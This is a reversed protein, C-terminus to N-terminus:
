NGQLHWAIKRLIIQETVKGPMSNLSVPRYNGLDEKHGKKYIPIVSALRWHESFEGTSWSHQYITSFPKATVEAPKRLVRPHIEDPGMTKHYDLHFLLDRVTKEQITPAKNREGDLVELDSLLTGQSYSVQSKFVTMFFANFVESTVNGAADLLPRLNEKTRRRSNIYKYLLKKNWKIRTALNLELQAKAKRIRKRCMRILEKYEGQTAQRKKWLLCIRKKEQLRLFLERNM